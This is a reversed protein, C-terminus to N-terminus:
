NLRGVIQDIGAQACAVSLKDDHPHGEVGIAGLVKGNKTLLLSGPRVLWDKNAAIQAAFAKDVKMREAMEAGSAKFAVTTQAKRRSANAETVMSGDSGLSARVGGRPDVLTAGANYGKAKCAAVAAEVAELALRMPPGEIVFDSLSPGEAAQVAPFAALGAAGALASILVLIPRRM